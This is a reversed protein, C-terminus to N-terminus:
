EDNKDSENGSNELECHTTDQLADSDIMFHSFYTSNVNISNFTTVTYSHVIDTLSQHLSVSLTSSIYKLLFQRLAVKDVVSGV